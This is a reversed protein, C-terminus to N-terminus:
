PSPRTKWTKGQSTQTRTVEGVKPAEEVMHVVEVDPVVGNKSVVEVEPSVGM